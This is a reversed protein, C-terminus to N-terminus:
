YLRVKGLSVAYQTNGYPREEVILKVYRARKQEPFDIFTVEGSTAGLKNNEVYTANEWVAEDMSLKIKISNALIGHQKTGPSIDKQTIKMGNLSKVNKLDFIIEHTIVPAM